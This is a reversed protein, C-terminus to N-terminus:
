KLAKILEQIEAARPSDPALKLFENFAQLAKPIDGANLQAYGLKEHYIPDKPNLQIALTYYQIAGASDNGAMLIEALNYALAADTPPAIQASLKYNEAAKALDNLKTWCTGISSYLDAALKDGALNDQKEAKLGKLAEELASVAGQYDQMEILCNGINIQYKYHIPHAAMFKRYTEVAQSFQGAQQQAEAEKIWALHEAPVAKPDIAGAVEAGAEKMVLSQPPNPALGALQMRLTMPIYGDKEAILDYNPEARQSGAFGSFSWKGKEDSVANLKLEYQLSQLTLKVGALPNGKEDKVDGVLRGKGRGEQASLSALPLLIMILMASVLTQRKM